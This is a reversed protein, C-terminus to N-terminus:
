DQEPVSKEMSLVALDIKSALYVSRADLINFNIYITEGDGTTKWNEYDSTKELFIIKCKAYTVRMQDQIFDPVSEFNTKIANEIKGAAGTWESDKFTGKVTVKYDEFPNIVTSQEKVDDVVPEPKDGGGSDCATLSLAIFALAIVLVFVITKKM